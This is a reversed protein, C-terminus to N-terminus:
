IAEPDEWIREDKPVYPQACFWYVMND